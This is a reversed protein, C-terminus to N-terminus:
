SEGGGFFPRAHRPARDYAPASQFKSGVGGHHREARQILTKKTHCSGCRLLINAPDFPKGGDKLEIIHDGFIRRGTRPKSSDHQADQCQRGRQRIIGDILARWEQSHYFSDVRKEPQRIKVRESPKLKHGITRLKM